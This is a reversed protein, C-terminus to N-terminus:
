IQYQSVALILIQKAKPCFPFQTFKLNTVFLEV